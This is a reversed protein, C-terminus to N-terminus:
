TKSIGGKIQIIELTRCCNHWLVSSLSSTAPFMPLFNNLNFQGAWNCIIWRTQVSYRSFFFWFKKLWNFIGCFYSILARPLICKINYENECQWNLWLETINLFNIVHLSTKRCAYDVLDTSDTQMTQKHLMALLNRIFAVPKYSYSVDQWCFLESTRKEFCFINRSKM